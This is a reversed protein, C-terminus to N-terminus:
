PVLATFVKPNATAQFTLGASVPTDFTELSSVTILASAPKDVNDIHAVGTITYSVPDDGAVVYTATITNGHAPTTSSMVLNVTVTMKNGLYSNLDRPRTPVAGCARVEYAKTREKAAISAAKIEATLLNRIETM